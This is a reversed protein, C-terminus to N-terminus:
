SLNADGTKYWAKKDGDISLLYISEDQKHHILANHFEEITLYETNNLYFRKDFFVASSYKCDASSGVKLIAKNMLIELDIIPNNDLMNIIEEVSVQRLEAQNPAKNTKHRDTYVYALEGISIYICLVSALVVITCMIAIILSLSKNTIQFLEDRNICALVLALGVIIKFLPYKYSCLGTELRFLHIKM